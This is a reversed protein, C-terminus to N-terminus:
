IDYQEHTQFEKLYVAAFAVGHDAGEETTDEIVAVLQV